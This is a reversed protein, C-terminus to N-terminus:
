WLFRSVRRSSLFLKGDVLGLSSIPPVLVELSENSGVHECLFGSNERLCSRKFMNSGLQRQQELKRVQRQHIFLQAKLKDNDSRQKQLEHVVEAITDAQNNQAQVIADLTDHQM